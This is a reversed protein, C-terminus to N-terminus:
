SPMPPSITTVPRPYWSRGTQVLDQETTDSFLDVGYALDVGSDALNNAIM